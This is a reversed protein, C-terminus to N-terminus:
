GALAKSMRAILDRVPKLAYQIGMHPTYGKPEPAIKDMYDTLLSAYLKCDVLPNVGYTKSVVEALTAVARRKETATESLRVNRIAETLAYRIAQVEHMTKTWAAELKEAEFYIPPKPDSGWGIGYNFGQKRPSDSAAIERAITRTIEGKKNMVIAEVARGEDHAASMEPQYPFEVYGLSPNGREKAYMGPYYGPGDHLNLSGNANHYKMNKGKMSNISEGNVIETRSYDPSLKAKPVIGRQNTQMNDM